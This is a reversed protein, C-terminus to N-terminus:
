ERAVPTLYLPELTGGYGVGIARMGGSARKDYVLFSLNEVVRQNKRGDTEALPAAQYNAERRLEKHM